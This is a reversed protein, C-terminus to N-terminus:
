RRRAGALAEGQPRVCRRAFERKLYEVRDSSKGTINALKSDMATTAVVSRFAFPCDGQRLAELGSRVDSSIHIPLHSDDSRRQAASSRVQAGMLSKAQKGKAGQRKKKTSSRENYWNRMPAGLLEYTHDSTRIRGGRPLQELRANFAHRVRRDPTFYQHGQDGAYSDYHLETEAGDIKVKVGEAGSLTFVSPM